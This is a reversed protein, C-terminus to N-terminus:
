FISVCVHLCLYIVTDSFACGNSVEAIERHLDSSIPSMMGDKVSTISPSLVLQGDDEQIKGPGPLVDNSCEHNAVFEELKSSVLDDNEEIEESHAELSSEGDFCPISSSCGIDLKTSDIDPVESKLDALNLDIVVVRHVKIQTAMDM